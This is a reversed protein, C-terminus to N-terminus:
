QAVSEEGSLDMSTKWLMAALNNDGLTQATLSATRYVIAERLSPCIDVKGATIEPRAIYRGYSVTAEQSDCGYFELVLGSESQGHVIAVVPRQTNGRVGGFRSSQMAYLPSDETIPDTVPHAWDSMRFTVLRLFGKPLGITGSNNSKWTINCSLSKGGDLLWHAARQEVLVAADVIRSEIIEDVKLTDVDGLESLAASSNNSDLVVRADRVIDEVSYEM